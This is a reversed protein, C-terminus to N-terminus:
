RWPWQTADDLFLVQGAETVLVLEPLSDGDFDALALGTPRAPVGILTEALDADLIGGPREWRPAGGWFIQLRLSADDGYIVEDAGDGDLDVVQPPLNGAHAGAAGGVFLTVRDDVSGGDSVDADGYLLGVGGDDPALFGAGPCGLLLDGLGDGDADGAALRGGVGGTWTPDGDDAYGQELWLVTADATTLPGTADVLNKGPFLAVEGRPIGTDDQVTSAGVALDSLGDGDGDPVLVLADGFGASTGTLGVEAVDAVALGYLDDWTQRDRGWLLWAAGPSLPDAPAVSLALDQVGDGDVDDLDSHVLPGSPLTLVLDAEDDLSVTGGPFSRGGWLVYLAQYATDPVLLDAQGDGDLDGAAVTRVQGATLCTHPGDDAWSSWRAGVWVCLTGYSGGTTVLDASGDGDLDGAALVELNEDRRGSALNSASLQQNGPHALWAAQDGAVDGWAGPSGEVRHTVAGTPDVAVLMEAAADNVWLTGDSALSAGDADTFLDDWAAVVVAERVDMVVLDQDHVVWAQGRRDFVVSRPETRGTGVCGLDTGDTDLRCVRDLTSDPIWLRGDPAIGALGAAPAPLSTWTGTSDRRAVDGVSLPFWAMGRRDLHPQRIEGTLIRTSVRQWNQDLEVVAGGECTVWVPGAPGAAIGLPRACAASLVHTLARSPELPDLDLVAGSDACTVLARDGMRAVATPTLCTRTTDVTLIENGDRDLFRIADDEPLPLVLMEQLSPPAVSVGVCDTGENGLPDQVRLCVQHSGYAHFATAGSVTGDIVEASAEEEDLIWTAQLLGSADDPDSVTGELPLDEGITFVDGDAPSLLTALPPDGTTVVLFVIAGGKDGAAGTVELQIDFYEGAEADVTIECSTLGTPAPHGSCVEEGRALWSVDLLETQTDEDHARGEALLTTGPRVTDGTSPSSISAVPGPDVPNLDYNNCGGLVALAWVLYGM